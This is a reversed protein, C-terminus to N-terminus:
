LGAMMSTPSGPCRTRSASKALTLLLRHTHSTACPSAPQSAKASSWASEVISSSACGGSLADSARKARMSAIGMTVVHTEKCAHACTHPQMYAHKRLAGGSRGGGFKGKKGFYGRECVFGRICVCVRLPPRTTSSTYAPSPVCQWVTQLSNLFMSRPTLMVHHPELTWPPRHTWYTGHGCQACADIQKHNHSTRGAVDM